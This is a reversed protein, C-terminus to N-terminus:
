IHAFAEMEIKSLNAGTRPRMPPDERNDVYRRIAYITVLGLDKVFGLIVVVILVKGLGNWGIEPKNSNTSIIVM